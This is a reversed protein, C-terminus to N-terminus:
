AAPSNSDRGAYVAAAMVDIIINMHTQTLWRSNTVTLSRRAIDRANPVAVKPLVPQIYGYDPLADSFLRGLGCGRAWLAALVADRAHQDPMTVFLSPWVGRDIGHDDFVTVGPIARLEAARAQGSKRTAELFGDLRMLASHGISQRWNGVRHLPIMLSFRDGAAAITDERQLAARLPHGYLWYLGRPNYFARYGVLQACRMIELGLDARIMQDCTARLSKRLADDRAHLFGGEYLTLGKGVALSFLGIDGETGVAANGRRAGFAQAADEIVRAGAAHAIRLISAVDTLRGALHTPIVALTDDDCLRALEAQDLDLTGASLDCLSIKLGCYTIAIPVLPCTYAPIVVTSRRSERKLTMLAVVLAATGSCTLQLSDVGLFAAAASELSAGGRQTFDRWRLELGATPPIEYFGELM